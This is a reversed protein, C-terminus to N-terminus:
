LECGWRLQRCTSEMMAYCQAIEASDLLLVTCHAGHHLAICQLEVVKLPGNKLWKSWTEVLLLLNESLLYSVNCLMPYTHSVYPICNCHTTNKGSKHWVDDVSTKNFFNKRPSRQLAIYYLLVTSHMVTCNCFLAGHLVHPSFTAVGVSGKNKHMAICLQMDCRLM